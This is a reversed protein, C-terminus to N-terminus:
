RLIKCEGSSFDVVRSATGVECEGGDVIAAVSAGFVRAADAANVTPSEGSRNASTCAIPRRLSRLLRLTFEHAPIRFGQTGEGGRLNFVVTSNGGLWTEAEPPVDAYDRAIDASAVLWSIRKEAARGKLAYVRKVAGVCFADCAIGYVTETPIIVIEGNEILKAVIILTDDDPQLIKL